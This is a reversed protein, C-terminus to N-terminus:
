HEERILDMTELYCILDYAAHLAVENDYGYNDHFVQRMSLVTQNM